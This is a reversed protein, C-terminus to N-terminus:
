LVGAVEDEVVSDIRLRVRIDQCDDDDVFRLLHCLRFDLILGRLGTCGSVLNAPYFFEPITSSGYCPVEHFNLMRVYKFGRRFQALFHELPRMTSQRTLPRSKDFVLRTRRLYTMM